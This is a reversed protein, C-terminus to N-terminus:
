YVAEWKGKRISKALNEDRSRLVIGQVIVGRFLAQVRWINDATNVEKFSGCNIGAKLL